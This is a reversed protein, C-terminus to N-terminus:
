QAVPELMEELGPSVWVQYEGTENTFILFAEIDKSSNVFQIANDTGMVMLATAYADALASSGAMVSASLLSHQVPYGTLPDITHSYKVGDKEYFKRYSGSTALARDTLRVISQLERQSFADEAPREIGVKWPSGDAKKGRALVEGGIDVLYNMIGLAELFEGILDVCYGQAIANLDIEVRPDSKVLIDGKLSIKDYGIFTRLSDVASSDPMEGKRFGFGWINVLPGVTIDFAGNTEEAVSKAMILMDKMHQGLTYNTDNRNIRSIVSNEVWLSAEQDFARLLSDLSPKLDRLMPDYYTVAYYTGQAEGQIRVPEVQKGTTCSVALMLFSFWLFVGMRLLPHALKFVGVM